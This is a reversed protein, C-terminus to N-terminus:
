QNDFEYELEIKDTTVTDVNFVAGRPLKSRINKVIEQVQTNKLQVFEKLTVVNNGEPKEIDYKDVTNFRVAYFLINKSNDAAAIILGPLGNLKWPGFSTEISKTFWVTYTRGRFKGQAKQCNFGGITKKDNLINWNIHKINETVIYPSIKEGRYIFNRSIIKEEKLNTYLEYRSKTKPRIDIFLGKSNEKINTKNNHTAISRFIAESNTFYLDLTDVLNSQGFKHIQVYTIKGVRNLNQSFINLTTLFILLRILKM